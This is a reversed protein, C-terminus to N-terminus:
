YKIFNNAYLIKHWKKAWGTCDILTTMVNHCERITGERNSIGSQPIGYVKEVFVIADLVRYTAQTL